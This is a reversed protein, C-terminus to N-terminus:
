GNGIRIWKSGLERGQTRWGGRRLDEIESKVLQLRHRLEQVQGRDAEAFALRRTAEEAQQVALALEALWRARNLGPLEGNNM